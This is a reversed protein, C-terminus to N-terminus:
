ECSKLIGLGLPYPGTHVGITAGIQRVAIDKQVGMSKEIMETLEDRMNKAEDSDYGYGVVINYQEVGDKITDLYEMVSQLVKTVAKKRSMTIGSSLLQGDKMAIIPKIGMKSTVAGTFKSMRGGARLYEVSGVTFFIRGSEVAKRIRAASEKLSVMNDRLRICELVLLGELVTAFQSDIVEIEAEPYEELVLERAITASNYSGSIKSSICICMMPVGQRAYEGFVDAYDSVSPLATKPYVDPNDVMYQYFERVDLELNEKYSLEDNLVIQFPVLRINKSEAERSLDCASDSIIQYNM